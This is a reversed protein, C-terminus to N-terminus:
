FEIGIATLVLATLGVMIKTIDFAKALQGRRVQAGTKDLGTTIGLIGDACLISSIVFLLIATLWLYSILDIVGVLGLGSVTIM